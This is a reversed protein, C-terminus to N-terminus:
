KRSPSTTVPLGVFSRNQGILMLGGCSPDKRIIM